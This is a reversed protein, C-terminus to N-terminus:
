LTSHLNLNWDWSDVVPIPDSNSDHDCHTELLLEAMLLVLDYGFHLKVITVTFCTIVTRLTTAALYHKWLRRDNQGWPTPRAPVEGRGWASVGRASVVEGPCVGRGGLLHSSCRVTYMRSSHMRTLTSRSTRHWMGTNQYSPHSPGAIVDYCKWQSTMLLTSWFSVCPTGTWPM